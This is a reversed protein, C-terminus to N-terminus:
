RPPPLMAQPRHLQQQRPPPRLRQQQRPPSAGDGTDRARQDPQDPHSELSGDEGIVIDGRPQDLLLDALEVRTGGAGTTLELGPSSLEAWQAFMQQTPSRHAQARPHIGQRRLAPKRRDQRGDGRQEPGAQREPQGRGHGAVAAHQQQSLAFATLAAREIGLDVEGQQQRLDYRAKAQLRAAKCRLAPRPPSRSAALAGNLESAILASLSATSCMASRNPSRAM